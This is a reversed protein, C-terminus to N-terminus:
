YILETIPVFNIGTAKFEEAYQKWCRATNPRAHCIAVADGQKEALAMAKYIQMRIAEVDTSNDLFIDNRAFRVGQEKAVEKAVSSATTRSDVFFLKRGQLEKLVLQMTEKDSTARSGQHNNVGMVGPLSELAKRTLQLKEEKSMGVKITNSGESMQKADMPEMPLHLLPVKGKTKVMELSDSSFNKNPMIAYSFPLGTNLLTRLSSLDAGCDDIIIALRGKYRRLEKAEQFPLKKVDKDQKQLNMNHFFWIRDTTFSQFGKGAKTKIGVEVRYANYSHYLDSRGNIYVLGKAEVKEKLWAGAGALSTEAPLGVALDRQHIKVRSQSGEVDLEEQGHKQEKLQWNSKTLLINDVIRQAEISEDTLKVVKVGKDNKEGGNIVDKNNKGTAYFLGCSIALFALVGLVAFIIALSSKGSKTKRAM